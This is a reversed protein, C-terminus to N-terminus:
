LLSINNTMFGYVLLSILFFCTCILINHCNILQTCFILSSKFLFFFCFFFFNTYLALVNDVVVFVILACICM